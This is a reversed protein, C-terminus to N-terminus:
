EMGHMLNLVFANLFGIDFNYPKGHFALDINWEIETNIPNGSRASAENYRVLDTLLLGDM